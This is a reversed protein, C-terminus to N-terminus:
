QDGKEDPARWYSKYPKPKPLYEGGRYEYAGGEEALWVANERRHKSLTIGTPRYEVLGDYRAHMRKPPDIRYWIGGHFFYRQFGLETLNSMRLECIMGDAKAEGIPRWPNEREQRERARREAITM